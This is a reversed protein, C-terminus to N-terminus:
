KVAIDDSGAYPAHISVGDGLFSNFFYEDSGAYPAHISVGRPDPVVRVSKTAGQMPPTSQFERAADKALTRTLRERCLPRPNFGCVGSETDGPLDDSGAYPAHISVHMEHVGRYGSCDSGAYPAHISVRRIGPACPPSIGDSGAYPAHISVGGSDNILGVLGTAGQM